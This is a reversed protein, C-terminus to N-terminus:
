AIIYASLQYFPATFVLVGYDKSNRHKENRRYDNKRDRHTQAHNFENMYKAVFNREKPVGGKNKKAM